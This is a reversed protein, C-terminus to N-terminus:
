YYLFFEFFYNHSLGMILWRDFQNDSKLYKFLLEQSSIQGISGFNFHKLFIENFSNKNEGFSVEELLKNWFNIDDEKFEIPIKINYIKYIFDKINDVRELDFTHDPLWNKYFYYLPNSFSIITEVNDKKWLDFWAKTSSILETNKIYIYQYLLDFNIQFIQIKKSTTDLKWIPAWEEKRYFNNWFESEFREWLGVLPLYIKKSHNEIETLSKLIGYFDNEDQFRLFESLPLLVADEDLDKVSDVIEEPTLWTNKNLLLNSLDIIKIKETILYEFVIKLEEFSNLFIFRVPFRKDSLKNSYRDNTIRELLSDISNFTEIGM